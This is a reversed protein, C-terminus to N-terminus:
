KTWHLFIFLVKVAHYPSSRQCKCCSIKNTGAYTKTLGRIQVAVQPDVYGNAAQQKVAAEEELVDEDTPASDDLPPILNFCSCPGGETIHCPTHVIHIQLLM